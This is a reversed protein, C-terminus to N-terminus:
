RTRNKLWTLLEPYVTEDSFLAPGHMAGPVTKVTAPVGVGRLAAALGTSQTAPVFESDGHMLLMPADGASVHTSSDADSVRNWCAPDSESPVCRILDVVAGRLRRQGDTATAKLGDQYALYPTNVPSLAVVGRVRQAGEGYTGLQTALLGGASSGIVVIRTPDVNWTKAHKKVFALAKGADDRQAPWASQGALRYNAAFVTFGQSNLRRAFYKWGTKDGTLWYGGHLVLVAPRPKAAPAEPKKAKPKRPLPRWYVDVKQRAHKGYAYTSVKPPKPTVMVARASVVAENKAARPAPKAARPQEAPKATGSSRVPTPDPATAGAGSPVAIASVCVAALAAGCVLVKRM